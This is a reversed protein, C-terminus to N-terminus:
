IRLLAQKLSAINLCDANNSTMYLVNSLFRLICEMQKDAIHYRRKLISSTPPIHPAM